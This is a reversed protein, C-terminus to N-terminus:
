MFILPILLTLIEYIRALGDAKSLQIDDSIEEYPDGIIGYCRIKFVGFIQSVDCIINCFCNPTQM